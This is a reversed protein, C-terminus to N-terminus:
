ASPCFKASVVFDLFFSAAFTKNVKMSLNFLTVSYFTESRNAQELRESLPSLRSSPFALSFVRKDTWKGADNESATRQVTARNKAGKGM